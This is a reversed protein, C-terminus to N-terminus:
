GRPALEKELFYIMVYEEATRKPGPLDRLRRAAAQLARERFFQYARVGSHLDEPRAPTIGLAQQAEEPSMAARGEEAMLAALSHIQETSVGILFEQFALREDETPRARVFYDVFEPDCGAQLLRMMESVGLLTGISVRIRQRASWTAQLLPFFDRVAWRLYNEWISCLKAVALRRLPADMAADRSITCLVEEALLTYVCGHLWEEIEDSLTQMSRLAAVDDAVRQRLEAAVHGLLRWLNLEAMVLTRGILARTPVFMEFNADTAKALLGVLSDLDRRRSGLTQEEFVPPYAELAEAVKEVREVYASMLRLFKGAEPHDCDHARQWLARVSAQEMESLSSLSGFQLRPPTM